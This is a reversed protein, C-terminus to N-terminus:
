DAKVHIGATQFMQLIRGVESAALTTTLTGQIELVMEKFTLIRIPNGNIADRFPIHEEWVKRDGRVKSVATVYTFVDTGTADSVAKIFAESWKPVTLERFAQWAKRGRLTKDNNIADIETNPSFGSQWSKCSVVFVKEPGDLKPHFGIVDIDSHNSDKNSIFDPHDRRPLFKLNHQVFYGRHILFEEVIQELIDEKTAM